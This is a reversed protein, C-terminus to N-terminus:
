RVELDTEMGEFLRAEELPRNMERHSYELQCRRTYRPLSIIYYLRLFPFFYKALMTPLTSKVSKLVDVPLTEGLSKYVVERHGDDVAAGCVGCFLCHM